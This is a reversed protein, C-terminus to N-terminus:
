GLPHTIQLAKTRESFDAASASESIKKLVKREREFHKSRREIKRENQFELDIDVSEWLCCNEASYLNKSVFNGYNILISIEFPFYLKYEYEQPKCTYKHRLISLFKSM